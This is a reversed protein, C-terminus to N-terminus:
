SIRARHAQRAVVEVISCVRDLQENTMAHFSPLNVAETALRYAVAHEPRSDFMELSSLPPFFPRADVGATTMAESLHIAIRDEYGELRVTPMWAGNICNDQESNMTVGPLQGLRSRYLALIEQKRAVLEEIRELQACGIAAQLNSMKFKFGIRSPAFQRMESPARGHNSLTLVRESLDSDGTVFMGGEGTTITKSGHFSFVGFTGVSGARRGRYVSGLAEAADEILYIDHRKAIAAVEDLDVLNGYLHTAVVARTRSTVASEIGSPDICWTDPCVDVFVPVAGVHLIPAVTAIWNTEALIVEDGPGIGLGALGMHLAGTCSSTAIAHQVNLHECFADEFRAIYEYCSEGWGNRAADTAYAVELETISPVTYPISTSM